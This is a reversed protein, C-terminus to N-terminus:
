SSRRARPYSAPPSGELLAIRRNIFPSFHNRYSLQLEPLKWDSGTVLGRCLDSGCRCKMTWHPHVSALAYDQTLEEGKAVERRTVVTVEDAMWCNPDCSHNGFRARDDDAQMLNLGEEIALSSRPVIEALERDDIPTGGLVLVTEGPLFARRAFLGKGDITSARVDVDSNVLSRELYGTM